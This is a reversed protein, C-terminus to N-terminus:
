QIKQQSRIWRSANKVQTAGGVFADFSEKRVFAPGELFYGVWERVFPRYEQGKWEMNPYFKVIVTEGSSLEYRVQAEPELKTREMALDFGPGNEDDPYLDARLNRLQSEWATGVEPALLIKEGSPRVWKGEFSGYQNKTPSNEIRIEAGVGAFSISKIYGQSISAFQRERFSVLPNTFKDFIYGYPSIVKDGNLAVIHSSDNKSKIGVVIEEELDKDQYFSLKPSEDTNLSYAKKIEETVSERFKIKLVATDSFSNKANYNGEYTFVGGQNQHTVSFLPSNRFGTSIKKLVFPNSAYNLKTEENWNQSPPKYHIESWDKKWLPAESLDEKSEDTWLIVFMLLAISVIALLFNRSM